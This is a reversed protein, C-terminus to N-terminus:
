LKNVHDIANNDTRNEEEKIDNDNEIENNEQEDKVGKKSNQKENEIDNKDDMEISKVSRYKDKEDVPKHHVCCYWYFVGCFCCIVMGVFVGGVIYGNKERDSLEDNDGDGNPAYTPVIEGPITPVNTPSITPLPPCDCYWNSNILCSVDYESGCNMRSEENTNIIANVKYEDSISIDNWSGRAFIQLDKQEDMASGYISCFQTKTPCYVHMDQCADGNSNCGINLKVSDNGYFVADNCAGIGNCQINVDAYTPGYIESTSFSLIGMANVNLNNRLNGYNDVNIAVNICSGSTSVSGCIITCDEYSSSGCNIKTQNIDGICAEEGTCLVNCKRRKGCNIITDSCSKFGNCIVNCIGENEGETIDPCFKTEGSCQQDTTCNIYHENQQQIFCKNSPDYQCNFLGYQIPCSDIYNTISNGNCHMTGEIYTSFNTITLDNWSNPAKITWNSHSEFIGGHGLIECNHHCPETTCPINTNPIDPCILTVNICTNPSECTLLSGQTAKSFDIIANTCPVRTTCALACYGTNETCAFASCYPIIILIISLTIYFNNPLLKIISNTDM